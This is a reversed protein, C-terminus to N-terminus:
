ILGFVLPELHLQTILLFLIAVLPAMRLWQAKRPPLVLFLALGALLALGRSISPWCFVVRGDALLVAM